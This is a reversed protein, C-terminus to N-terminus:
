FVSSVGIAVTVVFVLLFPILIIQCLFFLVNAYVVGHSKKLSPPSLQYDCWGTGIVFLVNILIWVPVQIAPSAHLLSGAAAAGVGSIVFFGTPLILLMVRLYPYLSNRPLTDTNEM